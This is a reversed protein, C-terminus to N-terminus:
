RNAYGKRFCKDCQYVGLGCKSPDVINNHPCGEDKFGICLQIPTRCIPCTPNERVWKMFCDKCVEDHGCELKMTESSSTTECCIFCTKRPGELKKLIRLLTSPLGFVVLKKSM